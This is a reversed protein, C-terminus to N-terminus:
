PEIPVPGRSEQAGEAVSGVLRRCGRRAGTVVAGILVVVAVRCVVDVEIGDDLLQSSRAIGEAPDGLEGIALEVLDRRASLKRKQSPCRV